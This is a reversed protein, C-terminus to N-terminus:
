AKSKKISKLHKAKLKSFRLEFKVGHVEKIKKVADRGQCITAKNIAEDALKLAALDRLATKDHSSKEIIATLRNEDFGNQLLYGRAKEECYLTFDTFVDEVKRNKLM